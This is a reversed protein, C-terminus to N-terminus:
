GIRQAGPEIAILSLIKTTMVEIRAGAAFSLFRSRFGKAPNVYEESAAAGFYRVYFQTIRELDRTWLAVHDIRVNLKQGRRKTLTGAAGCSPGSWSWKSGSEDVIQHSTGPSIANWWSSSRSKVPRRAPYRNSRRLSNGRSRSDPSGRGASSASIMSTSRRATM